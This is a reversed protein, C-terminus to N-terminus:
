DLDLLKGGYDLSMVSRVWAGLPSAANMGAWLLVGYIVGRISNGEPFPTTRPRLHCCSPNENNTLTSFNLVM